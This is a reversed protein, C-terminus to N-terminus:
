AALAHARAAEISAALPGEVREIAIVHSTRVTITQERYAPWNRLDDDSFDDHDVRTWWIATFELSAPPGDIAALANGYSATVTIEDGTSLYLTSPM